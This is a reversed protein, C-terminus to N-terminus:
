TCRLIQAITANVYPAVHNQNEFITTMFVCPCSKLPDDAAGDNNARRRLAGSEATWRTPDSTTTTMPENVAM